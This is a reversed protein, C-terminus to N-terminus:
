GGIFVSSCLHLINCVAAYPMHENNLAIAAPSALYQTGYAYEGSEVVGRRALKLLGVPTVAQHPETALGVYIKRDSTM